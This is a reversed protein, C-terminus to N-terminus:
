KETWNATPEMSINEFGGNNQFNLHIRMGPNNKGFCTNASRLTSQVLGLSLCTHLFSFIIYGTTGLGLYFPRRDGCCPADEEM